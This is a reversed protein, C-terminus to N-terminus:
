TDLDSESVGLAAQAYRLQQAAKAASRAEDKAAARLAADDARAQIGKLLTQGRQARLLSRQHRPQVTALDGSRALGPPLTALTRGLPKGHAGVIPEDARRGSAGIGAHRTAAAAAVASPDSMATCAAEWQGPALESKRVFRDHEPLFAAHSLETPMTAQTAQRRPRLSTRWTREVREGAQAFMREMQAAASSSHSQQTATPLVPTSASSRGMTRARAASRSTERLRDSLLPGAAAAAGARASTAAGFIGASRASGRTSSSRASSRASAAGSAATGSWSRATLGATGRPAPQLGAPPKSHMMRRRLTAMGSQSKDAPSAGFADPGMGAMDSWQTALGLSRPLPPRRGQPPNNGAAMADAPVFGAPSGSAGTRATESLPPLRGSGGRASGGAGAGAAGAYEQDLRPSDAVDLDADTKPGFAVTMRQREMALPGGLSAELSPHLQGLPDAEAAAQSGALARRVASSAPLTSLLKATRNLELGMKSDDDDAAEGALQRGASGSGSRLAAGPDESKRDGDDAGAGSASAAQVRSRLARLGRLSAQRMADGTTHDTGASKLFADFKLPEIAGGEDSLQELLVRMGRRSLGLDFGKPGCLGVFQQQNLFGRDHEDFRRWAAFFDAGRRRVRSAIQKKLLRAEEEVTEPARKLEPDVPPPGDTWRESLDVRGDAKVAVPPFSGDPLLPAVLPPKQGQADELPPLGGCVRKVEEESVSVKAARRVAEVLPDKQRPKYTGRPTFQELAEINAVQEPTFRVFGELDETATAAGEAASAHGSGLSAPEFVNVLEAFDLGQSGDEDIGAFILLSEAKTLPWHYEKV